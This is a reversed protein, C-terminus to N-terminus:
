DEYPFMITIVPEGDDGPGIVIKLEITPVEEDATVSVKKDIPMILKYLLQQENVRSHKIAIHAMYLVDWLRGKVDQGSNKPIYEIGAWLASTVAVPWLFGAEKATESVDILVGDELAQARTYTYIVTGFFDEASVAAPDDTM